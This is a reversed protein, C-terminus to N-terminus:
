LRHPTPRFVNLYYNSSRMWRKSSDQGLSSASRRACLTVFVGATYRSRGQLLDFIAGDLDRCANPNQGDWRTLVQLGLLDDNLGPNDDVAYTSLVILRPLTEPVADLVIATQGATYSGSANWTGVGAAALLQAHGVLLDTEFM